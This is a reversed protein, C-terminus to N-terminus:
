KACFILLHRIHTHSKKPSLHQRGRPRYEPSTELDDLEDGTTIWLDLEARYDIMSDLSLCDVHGRHSFTTLKPYEGVFLKDLCPFQLVVNEKSGSYFSILDSLNYLVLTELHGFVVIKNTNCNCAAAIEDHDGDEDEENEILVQRLTECGIHGISHTTVPKKINNISPIFKDLWPVMNSDSNEFKPFAM